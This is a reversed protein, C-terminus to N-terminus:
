RRSSGPRSAEDPAVAVHAAREDGLEGADVARRALAEAVDLLTVDFTLTACPPISASPPYAGYALNPPIVITRRGGIKMGTVGLRFGPM